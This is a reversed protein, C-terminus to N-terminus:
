STVRVQVTIGGTRADNRQRRTMNRWIERMGKAAASPLSGAEPRAWGIITNPGERRDLIAVSVSIKMQLEKTQSKILDSGLKRSSNFLCDM